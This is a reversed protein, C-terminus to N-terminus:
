YLGSSALYYVFSDIVHTRDDLKVNKTIDMLDDSTPMSVESADVIFLRDDIAITWKSLDLSRRNKSIVIPDCIKIEHDPTILKMNNIENAFSLIFEDNTSQDIDTADGISLDLMESDKSEEIGLTDKLNKKWDSM